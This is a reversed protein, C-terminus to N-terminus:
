KKEKIQYDGAIGYGPYIIVNKGDKMESKGNIFDNCDEETPGDHLKVLKDSIRERFWVEFM